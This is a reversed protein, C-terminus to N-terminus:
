GSHASAGLREVAAPEAAFAALWARFAAPSSVRKTAITDGNGIKISLGGREEVVRFGNEDTLDDGAFLPRRGLYPARALLAEVARGKGSAEPVIEIVSKGGQLRFNTGLKRSTSRAAEQVHAEAEPALRWHLAVSEGKDEILVGPIRSLRDALDPLAARLAPIDPPEIRQIQGGIRREMGHLGCIDLDLGPLFAEIVAVARGTVIALAGGCSQRLHALLAPLGPDVTVADPREAIDVLTGDFDLFLAWDNTFGPVGLKHGSV